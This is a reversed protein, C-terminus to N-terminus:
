LILPQSKGLELSDVHLITSYLTQSQIKSGYQSPNFEEHFDNLNEIRLKSMRSIPFYCYKWSLTTIPILSHVNKFYLFM